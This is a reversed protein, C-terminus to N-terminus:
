DGSALMMLQAHGAKRAKAEPYYAYYAHGLPLAQDSLAVLEGRRRFDDALREQGLAVGLGMRAFDLALRSAGVRQGKGSDLRRRSGTQALWENWGPNSAFSQGWSTHIFQEEALRALDHDGSLRLSQFGPSCFPLVRDRFLQAHRLQPYLGEGYTLRLDIRHASFDVPDDEVRLELRPVPGSQALRAYRPMFWCEALSPLVSVVLSSRDTGGTFRATLNAIDELAPAIGAFISQGADSLVVRNNFRVFLKRGFFDEVHRVQQSVAAPTVNLEVAAKTYSGTRAAAEFYKLANLPPHRAM